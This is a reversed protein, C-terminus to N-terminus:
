KRQQIGAAFADWYMRSATALEDFSVEEGSDLYVLASGYSMTLTGMVCNVVVPHPGTGYGFIEPALALIRAIDTIPTSGYEQYEFRWCDILEIRLGVGEGPFQQRLYRISIDVSIVGPVAGRIAEIAGDHLLGWLEAEM